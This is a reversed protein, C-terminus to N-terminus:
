RDSYFRKNKSWQHLRHSKVKLIWIELTNYISYIFLVFIYIFFFYFNNFKPCYYKFLDLCFYSKFDMPTGWLTDCLLLSFLALCFTLFSYGRGCFSFCMDLFSLLFPKGFKRSKGANWSTCLGTSCRCFSPFSSLPQVRSGRPLCQICVMQKGNECSGKSLQSTDNRNGSPSLLPRKGARTSECLGRSWFASPIQARGFSQKGASGGRWRSIPHLPSILWCCDSGQLRLLLIVGWPAFTRIVISQPGGFFRLIYFSIFHAQPILNEHSLPILWPLFHRLKWLPIIIFFICLPQSLRRHKLCLM